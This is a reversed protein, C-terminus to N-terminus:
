GDPRAGEVQGDPRAGEVQGDPRAGEVQGDPSAGQLRWSTDLSRITVRTRVTIHGTTHSHTVLVAATRFSM